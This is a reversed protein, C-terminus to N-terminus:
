RYFYGSVNASYTLTHSACVGGTEKIVSVTNVLNVIQGGNARLHFGTYLATTQTGLNSRTTEYGVVSTGNTLGLNGNYTATFYRPGGSTILQIATICVNRDSPVKIGGSALMYYYSPFMTSRSPDYYNYYGSKASAATVNSYALTMPMSVNSTDGPQSLSILGAKTGTFMNRSLSGSFDPDSMDRYHTGLSGHFATFYEIIQDPSGTSPVCVFPHGVTNFLVNGNVGIINSNAM